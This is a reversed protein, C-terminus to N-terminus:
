FLLIGVLVILSILLSHGNMLVEIACFDAMYLMPYVEKELFKQKMNPNTSVQRLLTHYDFTEGEMYYKLDTLYQTMIISNSDLPCFKRDPFAVSCGCEQTFSMQKKGDNIEYDCHTKENKCEIDTDILKKTVCVLKKDIEFSLGSECLLSSSTEKGEELSLYKVCEGKFCGSDNVCDYDETCAYNKDGTEIQPTCKKTAKNCYLQYGCQNTNTCEKDLDFGICSNDYCKNSACHEDKYCVQSDILNERKIEEKKQCLVEKVDLSLDFPCSQDSPCRSYNYTRIGEAEIMILCKNNELAPLACTITNCKYALTLTFVSVFIMIALPISTKM